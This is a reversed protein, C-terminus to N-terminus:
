RPSTRQRRCGFEFFGRGPRWSSSGFAALSSTANTCRCRSGGERAGHTQLVARSRSTVQRTGHTVVGERCQNRLNLPNSGSLSPRCEIVQPLLLLLLLLLQLLLLLWPHIPLRTFRIRHCASCLDFDRVQTVALQVLQFDLAFSLSSTSFLSAAATASALSMTSSACVIM